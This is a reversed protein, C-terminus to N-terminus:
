QTLKSMWVCICLSRWLNLKRIDEALVGQQQQYEQMRQVTADIRGKAAAVEGQLAVIAQENSISTSAPNEPQSSPGSQESERNARKAAPQDQQAGYPHRIKNSADCAPMEALHASRCFEGPPEGVPESRYAWDVHRRRQAKISDESYRDKKRLVTSTSNEDWVGNDRYFRLRVAIEHENSHADSVELVKCPYLMTTGKEESVVWLSDEKSVFAV